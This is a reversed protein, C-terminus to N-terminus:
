RQIGHARAIVRDLTAWFQRKAEPTTQMASFHDAHFSGRSRVIGVEVNEVPFGGDRLRRLLERVGAPSDEQGSLLVVRASHPLRTFDVVEEVQPNLESPFVSMVAAPTVRFRWASAALEVALRGGRSYGVIVVPVRPRGLRVIGAVVAKASHLLAPGRGPASEYRPYIVDNGMRVLHEIWPLHNAPYLESPDLGHMFVVVARPNPARWVWYMDAGQLFPGQMRPPAAAAAPVALALVVACLAIRAV